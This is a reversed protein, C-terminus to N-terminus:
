HRTRVFICWAGNCSDERWRESRRMANVWGRDGSPVLVTDSWRITPTEPADPSQRFDNVEIVRDGYHPTIYPTGFASRHPTLACVHRGMSWDMAIVHRRGPMAAYPAPGELFGALRDDRDFALAFRGEELEFILPALREDDREPEAVLALFLEADLVREHFRREAAPDGNGQARFAADLQTEDIM